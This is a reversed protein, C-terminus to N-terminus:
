AGTTTKLGSPGYTSSLDSLINASYGSAALRRRRERSEAEAVKDVTPAAIPKPAEPPKQSLQVGTSVAAIAASIGAIWTGPDALALPGNYEYSERALEEDTALDIIVRTTIRM